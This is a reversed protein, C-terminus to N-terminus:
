PIHCYDYHAVDGNGGADCGPVKESSSRKFCQLGQECDDDSDCDGQCQGCQASSTCGSGGLSQLTPAQPIPPVFCYDYQAVDGSGGADCGPVLTSLSSRRFCRLGDACDDDSDCDGQCQGCQASSTCGHHGLSQLTGQPIPPVFCYDYKPEDGSGGADCGPVLTSSSSRQFCRLGDACDDDSDCDGQCQECQASSTCGSGGLNELAGEQTYSAGNSWKLAYYGHSGLITANHVKEHTPPLYHWTENTGNTENVFAGNTTLKNGEISYTAKFIELVPHLQLPDGNADFLSFTGNCGSQMFTGTKSAGFSKSETNYEGSLDLCAQTYNAGNNWKLTYNGHSESVTATHVGEHTPPLYYWKKGVFVGNTTLKDVEISYTAKFIPYTPHLQLLVGSGNFLSFTGNCGYQTFTGTKSAGFSKSETNYEGSLDLCAKQTYSAGNDWDLTYYGHSGSITATFVGPHTPPLYHWTTGGSKDTVFVGNTTLKNGEISYTAKFIPYTPHLQLVEGNADFLSFTGNCGSQAFTGTKSVGVNNSQTNYEGSLELCTSLARTRANDVQIQTVMRLGHSADSDGNTGSLVDRQVGMKAQLLVAMDDAKSQLLSGSDHEDTRCSDRDNPTCQKTASAFAIMLGAIIVFSKVAVM